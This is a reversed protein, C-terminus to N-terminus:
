FGRLLRSKQEDEITRNMADIAQGEDMGVFGAPLGLGVAGLGAGKAASALGPKQGWELIKKIMVNDLAGKPLEKELIEM